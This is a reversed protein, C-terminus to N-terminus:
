PKNSRPTAAPGAQLTRMVEAPAEANVIARELVDDIWALRIEIREPDKFSMLEARDLSGALAAFLSSSKSPILVDRNV